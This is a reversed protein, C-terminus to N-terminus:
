LCRTVSDLLIFKCLKIKVPTLTFNAFYAELARVTKSKSVDSVVTVEAVANGM